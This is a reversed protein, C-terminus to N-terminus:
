DLVLNGEPFILLYWEPKLNITTFLEGRGEAWASNGHIFFPVDSGIQLGIRSLENQKLKTDWLKNLAILTAAADSSGGGLGKQLPIQKNLYIKAGFPSNTIKKLTKAALLVINDKIPNIREQLEISEKKKEFVLEDYLDILQFVTNLDHFRDERRKIVQLHLNLKAPAQVKLKNM